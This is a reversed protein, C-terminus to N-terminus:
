LFAVRKPTMIKRENKDRKAYFDVMAAKMGSAPQPKPNDGIVRMLAAVREPKYSLCYPVAAMYALVYHWPSAFGPQKTGTSVQGSTFVDATRQFYVKLGLALTVTVGNDPAPYLVVSSGSLDYCTPQGATEYYESVSVGEPIDDKDFPTIPYYNGDANLIEIREIKLHSTDFQYDRQGSVLTTTAVPFTTFNNDDWQWRGDAMLIWGVVTEYANNIRRLMDAAPYSTSDADCLTRAEAVIDSITAM